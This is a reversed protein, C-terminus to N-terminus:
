GPRQNQFQFQVRVSDDMRVVLTSNSASWRNPVLFMRDNAHILLRLNRYRYRFTQGESLELANEDIGPSRLYLREKTDLIVSPLRDLDLAQQQALGRGSWQAVTATTWFVSVVVVVIVLARSSRRLLLTPDDAPTPASRRRLLERVQSGYAILAAGTGTLLPTVLPYYAWERVQAYVLLLVLGVGLLALGATVCGLALQRLHGARRATVATEEAAGPGAAAVWRRTQALLALVGIGALTLVLMPVLLPQPSRMVYDQTDLGVTDVDIGFYEYQSRSSVYGFYFLLASLATAPAVITAGSRVWQELRGASSAEDSM